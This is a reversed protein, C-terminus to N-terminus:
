LLGSRMWLSKESSTQRACGCNTSELFGINDFLAEARLKLFEGFTESRLAKSWYVLAEDWYDLCRSGKLERALCTLIVALNHEAVAQRRLHLDRLDDRRRKLEDLEVVLCSRQTASQIQNLSAAIDAIRREIAKSDDSTKLAAEARLTPIVAEASKLKLNFKGGLDHVWFLEELLRENEIRHVADLVIETGLPLPPLFTFLLAPTPDGLVIANQIRQQQRYVERPEADAALSLVRFANCTVVSNM